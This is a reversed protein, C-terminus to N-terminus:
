GTDWLPRLLEAFNELLAIDEAAFADVRDSEVDITGAVREGDMRLIPFIAEARTAGFTTLYRSDTLVDQVIVPRRQVAAAGNLGRDIPFTPFAPAQLGTWAIASIETDSVDYLGVWHFHGTAQILEALARAKEVRSIPSSLIESIKGVPLKM